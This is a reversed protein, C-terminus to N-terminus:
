TAAPISDLGSGARAESSWRAVQRACAILWLADVLVLLRNAWGNFAIVGDPLVAPPGGNRDVGDAPFTAMLVFMAVAMLVLSIWSLHATIRMATGTPTIGPTRNISYTILLAAIPVAPIGILASVGHMAPSRVDFWAALAEGIGSIILLVIGTTAARTRALPWLAAALVWSAIAWCLFMTSLLWGHVGLAYESVVRWSPDFEPSVVHLAALALMVGFAFATAVTTFLGTQSHISEAQGAISTM